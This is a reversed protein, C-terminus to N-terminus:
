RLISTCCLVFVVCLCVCVFVTVIVCVCDCMFVFGNMKEDKGRRVIRNGEGKRVKRVGKYGRNVVIAEDLIM